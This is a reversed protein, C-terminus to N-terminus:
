SDAVGEAAAAEVMDWFDRSPVALRVAEGTSPLAVMAALLQAAERRVAGWAQVERPGPRARPAAGEPGEALARLAAMASGDRLLGLVVEDSARTAQGVVRLAEAGVEPAVRGAAAEEAVMVLPRVGSGASALEAWVGDLAGLLGLAALLVRLTERQDTRALDHGCAPAGAGAAVAARPALPVHSPPPAQRPAVALLALLAGAARPAHAAVTARPVLPTLWSALARVVEATLGLPADPAAAAHREDGSPQAAAAAAAALHQVCAELLAAPDEM